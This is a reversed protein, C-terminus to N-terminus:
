GHGATGTKVAPVARIMPVKRIDIRNSAQQRRGEQAVARKGGGATEGGQSLGDRLIGEDAAQGNMRGAPPPAWSCDPVVLGSIEGQSADRSSSIVFMM